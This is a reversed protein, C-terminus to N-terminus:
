CTLRRKAEDITINIGYKTAIYTAFLTSRDDPYWKLQERYAAIEWELKSRFWWRPNLFQRVHVKEHELLGRDDKKSPRILIVFGINYGSFKKPILFDTYIIM